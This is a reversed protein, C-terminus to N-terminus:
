CFTTKLKLFRKFSWFLKTPVLWKIFSDGGFFNGIGGWGKIKNFKRFLYLFIAGEIIHQRFISFFHLELLGTADLISTKTLTGIVSGVILKYKLTNWQLHALTDPAVGSLYKFACLFFEFLLMKYSQFQRLSVNLSKTKTKLKRFICEEKEYRKEPQKHM